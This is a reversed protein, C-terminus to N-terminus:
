GKLKRDLLYSLLKDEVMAMKIAPLLGQKQYYEAVKQPEQGMNLAEYYIQTMIERESVDIAEKKALSDVIFTVKVSKEADERLSERIDKLKDQNEQIEKIEEESMANIKGRLALDIEQEVVFEPLDVTVKSVFNEIIQPKLEENYLSTMKESKIQEKIENKLTEVTANEDNMLTKAFQDDISQIDKVQIEKLTVKFTADQGALDKNGYNEPFKVSIERTEGAKQGILQEEFGEIFQKSGIKLNYNDAKGGAFAVGNVFGEFDIVAYDGETLGRAEELTKFPAKAIALENLRTDVEEDSVSAEAFNPVLEDYNELTIEPRLGIKVEINLSGDEDKEFKTVRPEGIISDENISLDKLGKEYAEKLAESESDQNIKDKFRQKVVMVPVKGKRFGDIKIDKTIDRAIKEAKEVLYNALIKATVVANASNLKTAQIEM